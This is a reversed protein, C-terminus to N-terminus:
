LICASSRLPDAYIIKYKGTIPKVKKITEQRKAKTDAKKKNQIEKLIATRNIVENNEKAKEKAIEVAEPNDALQQFRESDKQSFGLEKVKEQKTKKPLKDVTSDILELDTRKGQDKPIEKILEGIRTEADILLEALEQAEEKKQEMVESAINLKNMARIEAKVSILKERGILVFKALDEIKVPLINKAKVIENKIHKEEKKMCKVCLLVGNDFICCKECVDIGCFECQEVKEFELSIIQGCLKCNKFETDIKM